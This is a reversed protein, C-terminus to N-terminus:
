FIFYFYPLNIESDELFNMLLRAHYFFMCGFRGEYTIFKQIISLLNRWKGKLTTSPIGKKFTSTDMGPNKLFIKWGEGEIRKNKFWIEGIRPLGTAKAIFSDTIAFKIDGIKVEM